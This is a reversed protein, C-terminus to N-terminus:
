PFMSANAVIDKQTKLWDLKPDRNDHDRRRMLIRNDQMVLARLTKSTMNGIKGPVAFEFDADVLVAGTYFDVDTPEVGPARVTRLGGIPDGPAARFEENRWQGDHFKWVEFAVNGPAPNRNGGIVFFHQLREITVPKTWESHKSFLLFKSQHEELQDKPLNSKNFLPNVIGVRVRYRYTQGPQANFDIAWLDVKNDNTPDLVLPGVNQRAAPAVVAGPAGPVRPAEGRLRRRFEEATMRETPQGPVAPAVGPRVGPPYPAYPNRGGFEGMMGPDMFEPPPAFEDYGGMM